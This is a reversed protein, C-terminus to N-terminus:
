LIDAVRRHQAADARFATELRRLQTRSELVSANGSRHLFLDLPTSSDSDGANRSEYEVLLEAEDARLVLLDEAVDGAADDLASDRRLALVIALAGVFPVSTVTPSITTCAGPTVSESRRCTTGPGPIGGSARMM